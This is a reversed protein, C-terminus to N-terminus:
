QYLVVVSVTGSIELYIGNACYVPAGLSLYQGATLALGSAGGGGLGPILAGAVSGGDRITVKGGSVSTCLVSIFNGPDGAVGKVVASASLVPSPFIIGGGGSGVDSYTSTSTARYWVEPTGVKYITGTVLQAATARRTLESGTVTEWPLYLKENWIDNPTPTVGGSTVTTAYPPISSVLASETAAGLTLVSDIPYGNWARLLKITM